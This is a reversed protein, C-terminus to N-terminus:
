GSLAAGSSISITSISRGSTAGLPAPSGAMRTM